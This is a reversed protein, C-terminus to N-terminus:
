GKFAGLTGWSTGEEIEAVIPIKLKMCHEMIEHIKHVRDRLDRPMNFDYEDHVLLYLIFQEDILGAEWIMVLALKMLDASGGQLLANLAKHTFARRINKYKERATEEDYADKESWKTSQWMNFRRRRGLLTMIYGRNGARNSVMDYTHKVFPMKGHYIEFMASAEELTKNLHDAMAPEGMGYVLGFNINKAPKREIGTIEATMKHFDTSPDNRYMERAEEAGAGQAYHTLLRYEIQSWDFRLWDCDKEPIFLSRIMPGIDEDRAPINQLNPMSSSFRGSVTGNEDGRLPHFLCYLRGNVHKDLIYGQVFTDRAKTYRRVETIAQIRPDKHAKLWNQTFSPNGKATLPYEIKNRECFYAIEEAANVNIGQVQRTAEEIKTTLWAHAKEAGEVDVPVGTKRMFLLPPILRCEIDFLKMLGEAELLPIQKELIKLPLRADQEAYPGCLTVPSRYINGGQAKRTAPGGYAKSLWEYLLDEEKTEGLYKEAIANLSYGKRSEEDLLPEAFSVDYIKGKVEIGETRLWDCDYLASHFVKPMPLAFTHKAWRIVMDIDMNEGITHRLPFYWARDHTAVSIGVIYGGTRTSPGSTLLNPDYTETDISIISANDLNPMETVPKWGTDPVPPLVNRGPAKDKNHKNAWVSVREQDEWFFGVQDKRL